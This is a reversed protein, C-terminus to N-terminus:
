RTPSHTRPANPLWCPVSAPGAPLACQDVIPSRATTGTRRPQRRRCRGTSNLGPHGILAPRHPLTPRRGARPATRTQALQHTLRSSTRQAGRLRGRRFTSQRTRHPGPHRPACTSGGPTNQRRPPSPRIAPSFGTPAPHEAAEGLGTTITDLDTSITWKRHSTGSPAATYLGPTSPPRIRGASALQAGPHRQVTLRHPQAHRPAPPNNRGLDSAEALSGNVSSQSVFTM